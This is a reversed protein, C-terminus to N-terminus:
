KNDKATKAETVIEQRSQVDSLTKGIAGTKSFKCIIFGNKFLIIKANKRNNGIQIKIARLGVTKIIAKKNM